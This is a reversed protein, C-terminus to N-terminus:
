DKRDCKKTRCFDARLVIVHHRTKEQTQSQDIEIQPGGRVM